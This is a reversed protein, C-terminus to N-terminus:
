EYLGFFALASSSCAPTLGPVVTRASTDVFGTWAAIECITCDFRLAMPNFISIVEDVFTGASAARRRGSMVKAAMVGSKHDNANAFGAAVVSFMQPQFLVSAADASSVALSEDFVGASRWFAYSVSWFIRRSSDGSM